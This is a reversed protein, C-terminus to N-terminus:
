ESSDDPFATSGNDDWIAWDMEDNLHAVMIDLDEIYAQMVQHPTVDPNGLQEKWKALWDQEITDHLVLLLDHKM